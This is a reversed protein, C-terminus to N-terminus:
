NFWHRNGIRCPTVLGCRTLIHRLDCISNDHLNCISNHHLSCIWNHHLNCISNHHLNYISNHHLYCISNHHLNCISNRHLNCISNRHLNCISNHHLNCISNHLLMPIVNTLLFLHYWSQQQRSIKAVYVLRICTLILSHLQIELNKMLLNDVTFQPRWAAMLCQCKGKTSNEQLSKISAIHYFAPISVFYILYQHWRALIMRSSKYGAMRMWYETHFFMVIGWWWIFRQTNRFSNICKYIITGYNNILKRILPFTNENIGYDPHEYMQLM